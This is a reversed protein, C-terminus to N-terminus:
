CSGVSSYLLEEPSSLVMYRAHIPFQRDDGIGVSFFGFGELGDLTNPSDELVACEHPKLGLSECASLYGEPDPKGRSVDEGTVLLDFVNLLEAKKLLAELEGRDASTVIALRMYKRLSEILQPVGKMLPVTSSRNALERYHVAKAQVCYKVPIRWGLRHFLIQFGDLDRRGLCHDKYETETLQYGFTRLVKNFAEFHLEEDNILVGNWDFLVARITRPFVTSGTKM